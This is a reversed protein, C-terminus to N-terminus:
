RLDDTWRETQRDTVSIYRPQEPQTLEFTIVRAILKPDESTPAGVDSIQDLPILVVFFRTSYPDLPTKLLFGAIYRFHPLIPGLNSNLATAAPGAPRAAAPGINPRM